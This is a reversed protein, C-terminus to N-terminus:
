TRCFTVNLIINVSAYKSGLRVDLIFSKDKAKIKIKKTFFFHIMINFVTRFSIRLCWAPKTFNKFVLLVLINYAYKGQRCYELVEEWLKKRLEMTDPCFDEYVYIGSNKLKNSNKFSLQKDKFKTIQCFITGPRNNQKKGARHCRDWHKERNKSQRKNNVPVARWLKGM